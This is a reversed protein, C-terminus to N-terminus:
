REINECDNYDRGINKVIDLVSSIVKENKVNEKLKDKDVIITANTFKKLPITRKPHTDFTYVKGDEDSVYIEEGPKNKYLNNKSIDYVIGYNKFDINGKIDLLKKIERLRYKLDKQNKCKKISYRENILDITSHEPINKIRNFFNLDERSLTINGYENVDENNVMLGYYLPYYSSGDPICVRALNKLKDDKTNDYVELIGKLFEIDNYHIYEELNIEKPTKNYNDKLFTKLPYEEESALLEESFEKYIYEFLKGSSSYYQKQYNNYRTNLFNEIQPLCEGSFVPVLKGKGNVLLKQISISHLLNKIENSNTDDVKMYWSDELYFIEEILM